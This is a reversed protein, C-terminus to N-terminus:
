QCSHNFRSFDKPSFAAQYDQCYQDLVSVTTLNLKQHTYFGPKEKLNDNVFM